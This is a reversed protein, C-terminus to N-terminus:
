RHLNTLLWASFVSKNTELFYQAHRSALDDLGAHYYFMIKKVLVLQNPKKEWVFPKMRAITDIQCKGQSELGYFSGPILAAAQQFFSKAATTDKLKERILGNFFLVQQAEFPTSKFCDSLALYEAATKLNERYFLTVAHRFIQTFADPWPRAEIERFPALHNQATAIDDRSLYYDALKLHFKLKEQPYNANQLYSEMLKENKAQRAIQFLKERTKEAIRTKPEKKIIETWEQIAARQQKKKYKLEASCYRYLAKDETSKALPRMDALIKKAKLLNKQSIFSQFRHHLVNFWLDQDNLKIRKASTEIFASPTQRTAIAYLLSNSKSASDTKEYALALIYQLSDEPVYPHSQRQLQELRTIAQSFNNEQFDAVAKRFMFWPYFMSSDPDPIPNEPNRSNDLSQYYALLDSILTGSCDMLAMWASDIRGKERLELAERVKQAIKEEARTLTYKQSFQDWTSYTEAEPTRRTQGPSHTSHEGSQCQSVGTLSLIILLLINKFINLL